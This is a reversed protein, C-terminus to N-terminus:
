NGLLVIRGLDLDLFGRWQPRLAVQYVAVRVVNFLSHFGYLDSSFGVVFILSLRHEVLLVYGTFLAANLAGSKVFTGHADDQSDQTKGRRKM